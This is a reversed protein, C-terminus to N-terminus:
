ANSAQETAQAAHTPKTPLNYGRASFCQLEEQWLALSAALEAAYDFDPQEREAIRDLVEFQFAQPGHNLWDALLAKNRHTQMSLEFRHRNMAGALNSSGGVYVRQNVTNRIAFVGMPVMTAMYQDKLTKNKSM